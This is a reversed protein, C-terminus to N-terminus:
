SVYEKRVVAHLLSTLVPGLQEPLLTVLVHNWEDPAGSTTTIVSTQLAIRSWAEQLWAKEDGGIAPHHERRPPLQRARLMVAGSSEFVMHLQLSRGLQHVLLRCVGAAAASVAAPASATAPQFSFMEVTVAGPLLGAAHQAVPDLVVAQVVAASAAVSTLVSLFTSVAEFSSEVSLQNGSPVAAGAAGASGAGAAGSVIDKGGRCPCWQVTISITGAGGIGRSDVRNDIHKLQIKDLDVSHVSVIYRGKEEQRQMQREQQLATAIYVACTTTAGVSVAKAVM